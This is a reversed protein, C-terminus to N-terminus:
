LEIQGKEILTYEDGYERLTYAFYEEIWQGNSYFLNLYENKDKPNTISLFDKENPTYDFDFINLKNIINLIEIKQIQILGNESSSPCIDIAFAYETHQHFRELKWSYFKRNKNKRNSKNAIHQINKASIFNLSYM